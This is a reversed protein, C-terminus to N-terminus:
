CHSVESGASHPILPNRQLVALGQAQAPPLHHPCAHVAHKASRQGGDEARPCQYHRATWSRHRRGCLCCGQGLSM